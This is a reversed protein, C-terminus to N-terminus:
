SRYFAQKLLELYQDIEVMMADLDLEELSLKKMHELQTYSFGEMTWRLVHIVRQVDVGEKFLSYDVNRYMREYWKSILQENRRQLEPTAENTDATNAVKLFNFMDPYVRCLRFKVEVIRRYMMFLDREAWDMSAEMEALMKQMAYDYLFLYLGQKNKFYHFLLGKSIGAQKVMENTSAQAYGHDSFEKMAANIIRAQKEEDLNFFKETM